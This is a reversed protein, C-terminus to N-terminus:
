FNSLLSHKECCRAKQNLSVLITFPNEALMLDLYKLQKVLHFDSLVPNHVKALPMYYLVAKNQLNKMCGADWFVQM